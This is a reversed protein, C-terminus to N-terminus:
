PQKLHRMVDVLAINAKIRLLTVQLYYLCLLGLGFKFRDFKEKTSYPNRFAGLKFFPIHGDYASLSVTFDLSTSTIM